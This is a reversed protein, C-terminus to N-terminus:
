HKIILTLLLDSCLIGILVLIISNPIKIKDIIPKIFYILLVSSLGWIFSMELATYKGIHFKLHSYDWFTIHFIYEIAYGGILEILSLLLAGILFILIGKQYKNLNIKKSLTNYIYVIIVSGIGYIPTWPGFLIGSKGSEYVFSELFHGIFSLLFFWKFYYM